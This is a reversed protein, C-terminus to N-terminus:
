QHDVEAGIVTQSTSRTRLDTDSLIKTVVHFDDLEDINTRSERPLWTYYTKYTIDSSSHGMEKSVEALSDGKSLRLTAYTHRMDHPTRRRLGTKEMARNWIRNLFNNYNLFNGRENCFIWEPVEKWGKRLKEEKRTTLLGKLEDCLQKTMRVQRVGSHSKPTTVKGAAINRNVHILRNGMRLGTRFGTIILAYYEPFHERFTNEVVRREDWSYPNPERAPKEDEPKPVIIDRAPNSDIYGDPSYAYQLISSLCNKINKVTQSRLGSNVKKVIMDAIDRSSIRDIAHNGLEPLIHVKLLSEYVTWTSRKLALRAYKDLWGINGRGDQNAWGFVYEKLTPTPTGKKKDLDLQGLLLKAELKKAVEIALRRDKGVKKAKRKGKHDIFIWWEGSGKVKERVRVGM